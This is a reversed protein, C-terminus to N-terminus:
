PDPSQLIEGDAMLKEENSNSQSPFGKKGGLMGREGRAKGLGRQEACVVSVLASDRAEAETGLM